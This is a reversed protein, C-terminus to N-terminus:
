CAIPLQCMMTKNTGTHLERKCGKLSSPEPLTNINDTLSPNNPAREHPTYPTQLPPMAFDYRQPGTTSLANDVVIDMNNQVTVQEAYNCDFQGYSLPIIYSSLEIEM